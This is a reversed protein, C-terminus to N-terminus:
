AAAARGEDWRRVLARAEEVDEPFDVEGWQEGTIDLTWVEGNQALHGMVAMMMQSKGSGSEGVVAVTEGASVDLSAGKVAEVVGDLTRFRVKLDRLELIPTHPPM